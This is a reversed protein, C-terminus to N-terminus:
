SDMPEVSLARIGSYTSRTMFNVAASSMRRLARPYSDFGVARAARCRPRAEDFPTNRRDASLPIRSAVQRNAARDSEIRWLSAAADAAARAAQATRSRAGM